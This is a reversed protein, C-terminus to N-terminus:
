PLMVSNTSGEETVNETVYTLCISVSVIRQRVTIDHTEMCRKRASEPLKKESDRKHCKKMSASRTRLVAGGQEASRGVQNSGPPRIRGQNVCENVCNIRSTDGLKSAMM